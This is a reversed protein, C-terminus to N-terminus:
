EALFLIRSVKGMRSGIRLMMILSTVKVANLVNCGGGSPNIFAYRLESREWFPCGVSGLCVSRVLLVAKTKDPPPM